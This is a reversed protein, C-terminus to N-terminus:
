RDILYVILFLQVNLTSKVISVLFLDCTSVRRLYEPNKAKLRELYIMSVMISTPTICAQRSVQAAFNLDFVDLGKPGSTVSKDFLHVAVETLPMSPYDLPGTAKTAVTGCHLSKRLRDVLQSHGKMNQLRCNTTLQGNPVILSCLAVSVTLTRSLKASKASNTTM